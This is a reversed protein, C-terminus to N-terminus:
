CYYRRVMIVRPDALGLIHRSQPLVGNNLGPLSQSLRPGPPRDGLGAGGGEGTISLYLSGGLQLLWVIIYSAHSKSYVFNPSWFRKIALCFILDKM